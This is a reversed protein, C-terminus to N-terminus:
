EWPEELLEALNETQSKNKRRLLRAQWSETNSFAAKTFDGLLKKIAFPQDLIVPQTQCQNLKQIASPGVALCFVVDAVSLQEIRSQLKDHAGGNREVSPYELVTQLQWPVKSDPSKLVYISFSTATGFHEDVNALDSTAFALTVQTDSRCGSDVLELKREPQIIEVM